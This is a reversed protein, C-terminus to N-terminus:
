AATKNLTKMANDLISQRTQPSTGGFIAAIDQDQMSDQEALNSLVAAQEDVFASFTALVEDRIALAHDNRLGTVIPASEAQILGFFEEAYAHYGRKKRWWRSWWSAQLDLAITQGLLVPPPVRPASPPEITFGTDSILNSRLYLKTIDSAAAALIKNTARGSRKAFLQYTSRLLVQLGTPDYKWSTNEGSQELHDVLAATARQLFSNHVNEVRADFEAIFKAFETEIIKGGISKIRDLGDVLVKRDIKPRPGSRGRMSVINTSARIENALNRASKAVAEIAEKGSGEVIRQSLADFLASVGSMHWLVARRDMTCAQDGLEAAAWNQMAAMSDAGPGEDTELLAHNSWLASGFIIQADTPGQHEKLTATISDRIEPIQGAPDALEDVRNVFFIVERSKINAILRVLAVDVSSLAQHASLVVVCIRSDRIAQITIQERVMFTDNVGPTDRICLPLPVASRQMFIEASKTIDAFRGNNKTTDVDDEFDDGLCVYRQILESNFHGYDHTQGLLLEFKRGLRRRSKEQMEAIQRRVQEVEGEAGARGAIEGMRGGKLVLRDWENGDFFRFRAKTEHAVPRPSLHLSTVVSTWPNVDAPLLDPRGVMANVLSTKGAKVQGIMTVSPEIAALKQRLQRARQATADNGIQALGELAARLEKIQGILPSLSDFNSRALSSFRTACGTDQELIKTEANM